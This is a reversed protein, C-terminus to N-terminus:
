ETCASRMSKKLEYLLNVLYQRLGIEKALKVEPRGVHVL